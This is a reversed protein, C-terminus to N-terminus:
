SVSGRLAGAVGMAGVMRPLARDATAGPRRPLSDGGASGRFVDADARWGLEGRRKIALRDRGYSGRPEFHHTWEVDGGVCEVQRLIEHDPVLVGRKCEETTVPMLDTLIATGDASRFTTELINTGPVYRREVDFEGAPCLQWRGGADADLLAAFTAPSDFQPWCLWDLSGNRGVLAAARCDGIIGYDQIKLPDRSRM